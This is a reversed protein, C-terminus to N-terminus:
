AKTDRERMAASLFRDDVWTRVDFDNNIFGHERLFNKEIELAEIGRDTVEPV